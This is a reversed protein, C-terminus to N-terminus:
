KRNQWRGPFDHHHHHYIVSLVDALKIKDEDRTVRANADAAAQAAAAVGGSAVMNTRTARAEAAQIAAADSRDVPKNGATRATAELAQGITMGSDRRREGGGGVSAASSGPMEYEGVVRCFYPKALPKLLRAYLLFWTRINFDWVYYGAGDSSRVVCIQHGVIAFKYNRILLSLIRTIM